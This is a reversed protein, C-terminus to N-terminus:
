KNSVMAKIERDIRMKEADLLQLLGSYNYEDQRAKYLIESAHRRMDNIFAQYSERGAYDEAARFAAPVADLDGRDHLIGAAIEANNMNVM